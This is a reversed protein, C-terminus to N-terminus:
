PLLYHFVLYTIFGLIGIIAIGAAAVTSIKVFEDKTPRRALKLVRLYKRFFESIIQKSERSIKVNIASFRGKKETKRENVL